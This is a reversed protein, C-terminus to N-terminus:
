TIYNFFLKNHYLSLIQCLIGTPPQTILMTIKTKAIPKAIYLFLEFAAGSGRTTNGIIALSAMGVGVSGGRGDGVHSLGVTLVGM